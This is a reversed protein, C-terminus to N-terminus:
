DKDQADDKSSKYNGIKLNLYKNKKKRIKLRDIKRFGIKKHGELNHAQKLKFLFGHMIKGKINTKFKVM